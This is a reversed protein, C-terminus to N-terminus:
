GSPTGKCCYFSAVHKYILAVSIKSCMHLTSRRNTREDREKLHNNLRQKINCGAPRRNEQQSGRIESYVTDTGKTLPVKKEETSAEIHNEGNKNHGPVYYPDETANLGSSMKANSSNATRAMELSLEKAKKKKHLYWWIFGASIAIALAVVSSAIITKKWSALVVKVLLHRSTVLNAKNSATCSYIGEKSKKFDSNMWNANHAHVSTTYLVHNTKQEDKHYFTFNVPFSGNKVKCVLSLGTGDEVEGNEPILLLSANQVPVIVSINLLNSMKWPAINKNKAECRYPGFNQSLAAVVQLVASANGTVNITGLKESGRFFAYQIPPTGSSSKCMLRFNQGVTVESVKKDHTLVPRSVAAYVFIQVPSSIKTINQITVGCVYSGSDVAEAKKSYKGYPRMLKTFTNDKKLFFNLSTQNQGIIYCSLSLFNGESIHTSSAVLQPRAFLEAVTIYLSKSKSLKNSEAKCTYNGMDAVTAIVNFVISGRRSSEMIQKGKQMTILVDESTAHSTVINCEITMNKGETINGMPWVTIAPNSFPVTVTVIKRVSSSTEPHVVSQIKAACEFHVFVDGEAVQFKTRVYNHHLAKRVLQQRNQHNNTKIFTFEFPPKEDPVECLVEIFDGESAEYKSLTINPKALGTVRLALEQSSREKGSSNVKCLYDGSHSVRAPHIAYVATKQKSSVNYILSDEKLFSFHHLIPFPETQIIDVTCTLNIPVGNMLESSPSVNLKVSNITFVKDNGNVVESYHLVLHLMLTWCLLM